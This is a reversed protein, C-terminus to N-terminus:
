IMKSKTLPGVIGDPVLGKAKQFLIVAAKTKPGFYNTELGLSGPGIPSIPFGHTNLYHQLEKIDEGTTGPKFNNPSKFVPPASPGSSPPLNTLPANPPLVSVTPPAIPTVRRSPSSGSSSRPAICSGDDTDAEPNFNTADEDTCGLVPPVILFAIADMDDMDDTEGPSTIVGTITDITVLDNSDNYIRSGYLVDNEDFAAASIYDVGSPDLDVESIITGLDPDIQYFSTDYKGFFYLEDSSNFALGYGGYSGEIGDNDGVKTVLCETDDDGNCSTYDITYLNSDGNNFGYLRGDSHFSIDPFLRSTGGEDKMVGLLTGEGTETNITFLSKSPSNSGGSVAYLVDTDPHFAMGTIYYGVPGITSIREGTEPNLIYLNPDDSNSGSGDIAYLTTGGPTFFTLEGVNNTYFDVDSAIDTDTFAGDLFTITLNSVSDESDHNNANGTFTLTAQDGDENVSMVATLGTPKNNLTYHVGETLTGGANVFTDNIVTAIRSGDVSGDNTVYPESFNGVYSSITPESTGGDIITWGFESIIYSRAAESSDSYLSEGASFTVNSQLPLSSWTNLMSDYISTPLALGGFMEEMNIVNSVDWSSIDQNFDFASFFMYRTMLVNSVDWSSIDQNFSSAGFFMIQMDEVNSVDWSSIDQNFTTANEFMRTMYAVNSVDWSSIDQNFSSAGSFMSNMNTLGSVDWSSIDQNFSSARSFMGTINTVGSVDWSSIDQNFNVALDFMYHMDTVNSVDWSNLPQNFSIAGAFTQFMNTVNSVDWSNINQNFSYTEQLMQAMNTVGSLNPTDSALITLNQCNWFAKEMSSWAITGWQDVSLIKLRDGSNNFYIRPFTGRIKITYTGAVGFNHTVNGTIGTQEFTGNNDWDVDYNYGGGTTPITISTSGSTGANNTKWTTIFEGAAEAPIPSIFFLFVFAFLLSLILKKM